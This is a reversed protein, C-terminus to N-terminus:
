IGYSFKNRWLLYSRAVWVEQTLTCLLPVNKGNRVPTTAMSLKVLISNQATSFASQALLATNMWGYIVQHAIAGACLLYLLLQVDYSIFCALDMPQLLKWTSGSILMPLAQYGSIICDFSCLYLFFFCFFLCVSASYKKMWFKKDFRVVSNESALFTICFGLKTHVILSWIMKFFVNLVNAIFGDRQQTPNSRSAELWSKREFFASEGWTLNQSQFRNCFDAKRNKKLDTLSICVLCILLGFLIM